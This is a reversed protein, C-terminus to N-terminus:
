FQNTNPFNNTIKNQLTTVAQFILKLEFESKMNIAIVQRQGRIPSIPVHTQCSPRNKIIKSFLQVTVINNTIAVPKITTTIM